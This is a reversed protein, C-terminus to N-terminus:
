PQAPAQAPAAVPTVPFAPDATVVPAQPAPIAAPAPTAPAPETLAANVYTAPVGGIVFNLYSNLGAFFAVLLGAALAGGLATWSVVRIDTLGGLLGGAGLIVLLSAQFTQAATRLGATLAQKQSAM